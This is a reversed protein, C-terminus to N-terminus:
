EARPDTLTFTQFVEQGGADRAALIVDVRKEAFDAPVAWTIVGKADVTMEKPASELKFTVPGKKARAEVEYRFTQGRRFTAPPSSTVLLYDRGSKDLAADPDAPYLHLEDRSPPVVVLLKAKPILHVSHEVGFGRLGEWGYRAVVTKEYVAIPKKDGLVFLRIAGVPTNDGGGTLDGLTMAHLYFPGHAAPLYLHHAYGSGPGMSFVVNPLPTVRESVVGHGGAYVHRDDPGPMVFFTALHQGHERVQGGELVVTGVGNPM